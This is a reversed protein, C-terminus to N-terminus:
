YSKAIYFIIKNNTLLILLVKSMKKNEFNPQLAYLISYIKERIIESKRKVLQNIDTNIIYEELIEEDEVLRKEGPKEIILQREMLCSCMSSLKPHTIKLFKLISKQYKKRLFHEGDEILVRKKILTEM